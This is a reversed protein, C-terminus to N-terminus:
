VEVRQFGNLNLPTANPWTTVDGAPQHHVLILDPKEVWGIASGLNIEVVGTANRRAEVSGDIMHHFAKMM